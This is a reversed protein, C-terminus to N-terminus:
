KSKEKKKSKKSKKAITGIVKTTSTTSNKQLQLTHKKGATKGSDALAHACLGATGYGSPDVSLFNLANLVCFNRLLTVHTFM